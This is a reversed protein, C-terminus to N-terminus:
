AVAPEPLAARLAAVALAPCHVKDPPVGGLAATLHEATLALCERVSRHAVLETLMSGAAITAGCGHTQFRAETVRDGDLRLCVVMFPGQGPIGVLGIRDPDQMPGANRPSLFHNMLIDSYRGM